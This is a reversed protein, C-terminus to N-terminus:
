PAPERHALRAALALLLPASRGGFYQWDPVAEDLYECIAELCPQSELSFGVKQAEELWGAIADLDDLRVNKDALEVKLTEVAERFQRVLEDDGLAEVASPESGVALTAGRASRAMSPAALAAPGFNWSGMMAEFKEILSQWISPAPAAGLVEAEIQQALERWELPPIIEVGLREAEEPYALLYSALLAREEHPLDDSKLAHVMVETPREIGQDDPEWLIMHHLQPSYIHKHSESM